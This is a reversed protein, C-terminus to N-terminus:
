KTKKPQTVTCEYVNCERLVRNDSNDLLQLTGKKLALNLPVFKGKGKFQVQGFGEQQPLKISKGETILGAEEVTMNDLNADNGMGMLLYRMLNAYGNIVTHM